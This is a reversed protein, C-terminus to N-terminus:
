IVKSVARGIKRRLVENRGNMVVQRYTNVLESIDIADTRNGRNRLIAPELVRSVEGVTQSLRQAGTRSLFRVVQNVTLTRHNNTSDGLYFKITKVTDGSMMSRMEALTNFVEHFKRM